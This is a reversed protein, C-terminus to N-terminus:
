TGAAAAPTTRTSGSASAGAEDRLTFAGVIDRPELLHGGLRAARGRAQRNDVCRSHERHIVVSPLRSRKMKVALRFDNLQLTHWDAAGRLTRGIPYHNKISYLFSVFQPVGI